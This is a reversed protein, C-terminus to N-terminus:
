FRALPYPVSFVADMITATLKFSKTDVFHGRSWPRLCLASFVNTLVPSLHSHVKTLPKHNFAAFAQSAEGVSSDRGITTHTCQYGDREEM